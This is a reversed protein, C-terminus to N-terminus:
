NHLMGSLLGRGDQTALVLFPSSWMVQQRYSVYQVPLQPCGPESGIQVGLLGKRM